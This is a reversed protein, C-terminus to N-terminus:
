AALAAFRSTRTPALPRGAFWAAIRDLNIAAATAVHQLGTKALGRYRARRLGFARVGQSLTAEVGQRQAYLRRGEATGERARAAALAAHERRPLLALVRGQHDSRSRTCRARSACARCDAARFQVRIAGRRGPGGARESWRASVKGEPCRVARGDWDVAFDAAGFAGEDRSQWSLNRRGPGVLDIGHRERAAILHEASVYASDVLHEAPALGKAALADHIPATRPAEHVNAPTTDAHLVLRPAGPDCSETLHVMYGTWRTGGKARFRADTDYPTEVRDGPGRGQVPRLRAGGSGDGANGGGSGPEAREFHRAWVRRLVAVSPLTSLGPPVGPGALADLLRHGDAGVRAVYADRKPGTEPLRMDEIRRGYREFWASPALARLWGPAAAATENLAARLTEALLEVRNLDRVAALVHTSDTRQRGRAKLLGGERAADLVRGLLREEAGHELLRGRFECLLSHDFGADALDLALLHKWDIRGRVAEAAQRDSLGERFQMLTVLALRWPAYAPQGLEPYLDAFDGDQFVAGLRQRLLLYPNGRPFAARAVRATDNPVPPAGSQPRLSM